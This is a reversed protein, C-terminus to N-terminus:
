PKKAKNALLFIKKAKAEGIGEIEKLDEIKAASLKKLSDYGAQQLKQITKESLSKLSDFDISGKAMKKEKKAALTKVSLGIKHEEPEMSIIKAKVEDGLKLMDAPDSIREDSIESIHILGELGSKLEVFAGFPTLRKITGVVKDGIKYKKIKDLWPDKQTQKISLSIRGDEITIVKAKVKDGVHFDHHIDEVRDWSVESIHILGELDDFHIFLGFDVVGSVEGTVMDGTKLTSLKAKDTELKAARESFIIDKNDRNINIVKVELENGVLEKLKSLIKEKDGGEVRPYHTPSLQSVPLFGSIRGAAVLLGGRNAESVKVKMVKGQEFSTDFGGWEGSERKARFSLVVNGEADESDYVTAKIKEGSKLDTPANLMERGVVIGMAVGKLDILIKNKSASIVKGSIEDGRRFIFDSKKNKLLEAFKKVSKKTKIKTM